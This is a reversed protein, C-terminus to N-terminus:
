TGCRSDLYDTFAEEQRPQAPYATPAHDPDLDGEIRDLNALLGARAPEPMSSPIGIERVQDLAERTDGPGTAEETARDASATTALDEWAACFQVRTPAEDSASAEPASQDTAAVQELVFALFAVLAIMALGIVIRAGTSETM